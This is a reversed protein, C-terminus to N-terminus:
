ESSSRNPVTMFSRLYILCWGGIKGSSENEKKCVFTRMHHCPRDNWKYRNIIKGGQMHVCNQNDNLTGAPQGEAWNFYEWSTGDSWVWKSHNGPDRQGGLWPFGGHLEVMFQHEEDSHISAM